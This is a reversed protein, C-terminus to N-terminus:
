HEWVLGAVDFIIKHQGENDLDTIFIVRKSTKIKSILRDADKIILCNAMYASVESYFKMTNTSDFVAELHMNTVNKSFSGKDLRLVVENMGNKNSIVIQADVPGSKLHVAQTASITAHYLNKHNNGDDQDTMIWRSTGGRPLMADKAPANYAASDTGSTKSNLSNAIGPKTNAPNATNTDVPNINNTAMNTKGSGSESTQSNNCATAFLGIFLFTLFHRKM